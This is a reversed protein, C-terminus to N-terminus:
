KLNRKLETIDVIGAKRWVEGGNRYIIFTPISTAGIQDMLVEQEGADIKVLTFKDRLDRKLTELVPEMKKCPPCWDAGVDVLVLPTLNTLAKYEALSIAIANNSLALPKGDAKWAAIGGKLESTKFGQGALWQAAESSRGGSACYVLVPKNKDLHLTRQKFEEKNNWDAQMAKSIHGSQFEKATRVDLVQPSDEQTRAEFASPELSTQRTGPGCAALCFCLIIIVGSKKM